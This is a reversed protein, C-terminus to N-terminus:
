VEFGDYTSQLKFKQQVPESLDSVNWDMQTLAGVILKFRGDATELNFGNKYYARMTDGPPPTAPPAAALQATPTPLATAEVAQRHLDQQREEDARQKLARYQQESIQKNARLIDLLEDVVRKEEAWAQVANMALVICALAAARALREAAM